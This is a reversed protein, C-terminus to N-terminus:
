TARSDEREPYPSVTHCQWLTATDWASGLCGCFLPLPQMSGAWAPLPAPLASGRAPIGCAAAGPHAPLGLSPGARHAGAGWSIGLQKSPGQNMGSPILSRPDQHREPRVLGAAGPHVNADSSTRSNAAVCSGPSRAPSPGVSHSVVPDLIGAALPVIAAQWPSCQHLTPAGPSPAATTRTPSPRHQGHSM